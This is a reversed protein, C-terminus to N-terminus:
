TKIIKIFRPNKNIIEKEDKIKLLSMIELFMEEWVKFHEKIKTHDRRISIIPFMQPTGEKVVGAGGIEFFGDLASFGCITGGFYALSTAQTSLNARREENKERVRDKCQKCLWNYEIYPEPSTFTTHAFVLDRWLKFPQIEKSRSEIKKNMENKNPLIDEYGLDKIFSVLNLYTKHIIKELACLINIYASARVTFGVLYSAGSETRELSDKNEEDKVIYDLMALSRSIELSNDPLSIQKLENSAEIFYILNKNVQEWM